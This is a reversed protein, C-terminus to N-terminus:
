LACRGEQPQHNRGCAEGQWRHRRTCAHADEYDVQHRTPAQAGNSSKHRAATRSALISEFLWPSSGLVELRTQANGLQASHALCGPVPGWPGWRRAAQLMAYPVAM